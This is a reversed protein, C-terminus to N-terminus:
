GNSLGGAVRERMASAIEVDMKATEPAITWPPFKPLSVGADVAAFVRPWDVRKDGHEIIWARMEAENISAATQAIKALLYQESAIGLVDDRCYTGVGVVKGGVRYHGVAM